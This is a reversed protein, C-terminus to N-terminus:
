KALRLSIFRQGTHLLLIYVRLSHFRNQSDIQHFFAPNRSLCFRYAELSCLAKGKIMGKCGINKQFVREFFLGAVEEAHGALEM